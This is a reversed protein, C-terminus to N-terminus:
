KVKVFEVKPLITKLEKDAKFCIRKAKVNGPTCEQPSDYGPSSASLSFLGIDEIHVKMGNLLQSKIESKIANIVLMVDGETATCKDSIIAALEKTRIIGSSVPLAYYTAKEKDSSVHTKKRVTYKHAM